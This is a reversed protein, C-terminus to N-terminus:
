VDGKLRVNVDPLRKLIQAYMEKTDQIQKQLNSEVKKQYEERVGYVKADASKQIEVEKKLFELDRKENAIKVMHKLEEEEIKKKSELEGLKKNLSRVSKELEFREVELSKNEDILQDNAKKLRENKNFWM